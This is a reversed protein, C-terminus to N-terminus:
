MRAQAAGISRANTTKTFPPNMMLSSSLDFAVLLGPVLFGSPRALENGADDWTHFRREHQEFREAFKRRYEVVDEREHGDSYM